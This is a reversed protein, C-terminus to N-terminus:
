TKQGPNKILETELDEIRDGFDELVKFYNNVIGDILEYTLYDTGFSRIRTKEKRILERPHNFADGRM